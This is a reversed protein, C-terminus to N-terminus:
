PTAEGPILHVNDILRARGVRAALALVAPLDPDYPGLDDRERVEVYEPEVLLRARAAAVLAAADREGAGYLGAAAQLGANLSAAAAREGPELYANRSSLALGDADRVTPAGRIEVGLDLDRAMRRIVVLQQWDKEGFLAAHPRAMCLLKCVVTAVGRFHGPRFAGCLVDAAPGPDVSTAFGPPYVEEVSPAFVIDVGEEEAIALDRAEDRPYKALDEGQAFQSPNVFLSMVVHSAGSRARRLLERHGDHLAGMTPVLTVAEGGALAARLGSVSREVRV